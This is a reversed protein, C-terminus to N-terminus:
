ICHRGMQYKKLRIIQGDWFIDEQDTINSNPGQIAGTANIVTITHTNNECPTETYVNMTYTSIIHLSLSLSGTGYYLIAKSTFELSGNQDIFTLNFSERPKNNHWSHPKVVVPFLMGSIVIKPSYLQFLCETVDMTKAEDNINGILHPWEKKSDMQLWSRMYIEQYLLHYHMGSMWIHIDTKQSQM